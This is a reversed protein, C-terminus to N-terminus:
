IGIVDDRSEYFNKSMAKFDFVEDFIPLIWGSHSFMRASRWTVKQCFQYFHTEGPMSDSLHM